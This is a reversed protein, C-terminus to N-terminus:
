GRKKKIRGELFNDLRKAFLDLGHRKLWVSRTALVNSSDFQMHHERCLTIIFGPDTPDIGSGNRSGLHAGDVTHGNEWGKGCVLCKACDRKKAKVIASQIKKARQTKM